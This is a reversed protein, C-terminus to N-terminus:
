VVDCHASRASVARSTPMDFVPTWPTVSSTMRISM